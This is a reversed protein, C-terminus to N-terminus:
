ERNQCLTRGDCVVEPKGAEEVWRRLQVSQIDKVGCSCQNGNSSGTFSLTHVLKHGATVGDHLMELAVDILSLPM